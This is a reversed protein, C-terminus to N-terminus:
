IPSAPVRGRQMREGIPWTKWVNAKAVNKPIKGTKTLNKQFDVRRRPARRQGAPFAATQPVFEALMAMADRKQREDTFM